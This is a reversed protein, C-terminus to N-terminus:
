LFSAPSERDDNTLAYISLQALGDPTEFVKGSGMEPRGAELSFVDSPYRVATGSSPDRYDSWRHNQPQGAPFHHTLGAQHGRRGHAAGSCSLLIAIVCFCPLRLSM